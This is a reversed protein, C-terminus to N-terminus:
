RGGPILGFPVDSYGAQDALPNSLRDPMQPTPPRPNSFKDPILEWFPTMPSGWTKAWEEGTLGTIKELMSLTLARNDTVNESMPFRDYKPDPRWPEPTFSPDRAFLSDLMGM